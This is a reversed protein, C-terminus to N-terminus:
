KKKTARRARRNPHQHDPRRSAELEPRSRKPAAEPKVIGTKLALTGLTSGIAQATTELMGHEGHGNLKKTGRSGNQASQKKVTESRAVPEQVNGVM